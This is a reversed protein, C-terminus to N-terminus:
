VGVALLTRIGLLPSIMALLDVKEMQCPSRHGGNKIFRFPM